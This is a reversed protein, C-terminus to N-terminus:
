ELILRANLPQVPRNNDVGMIGHFQAVEEHSVQVPQKMVMWTVGESCPPTTLSGSYRYFSRDEPLLAAANVTEDPAKENQGAKAPMHNWVSEIAANARGEEYFVGIVALNGDEDAHVLHGEMPYPHGDVEHESPSHFHFQKLEFRHDGVEIYSGPAYDVQVSHGNNTVTLPTRDYHFTVPPQEAEVIRSLDVPSQNRGAGCTGFEAALSAWHDPGTKGEYSWHADGHGALAAGSWLSAAVLWTLRKLKSSKM